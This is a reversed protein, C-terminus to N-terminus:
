TAVRVLYGTDVVWLADFGAASLPSGAGVVPVTGARALSDDVALLGRETSVWAGPPAAVLGDVLATPSLELRGDRPALTVPDHQTIGGLIHRVWVTTGDFAVADAADDLEVAALETGTDDLRVLRGGRSARDPSSVGAFVGDPAPALAQVGGPTPVRVAVENTVGDVRYLQEADDIGVWVGSPTAVLPTFVAAVERAVGPPELPVTAVEDGTAADSRTVTLASDDLVWVADGAAAIAVSDGSANARWTPRLSRPEVRRVTGRRGEGDDLTFVADGGTAVEDADVRVAGDIRAAGPDRRGRLRWQQTEECRGTPGANDEGEVEVDIELVAGDPRVKGDIDDFVGRVSDTTDTDTATLEIEFRGDDEVLAVGRGEPTFGGCEVEVDVLLLPRGAAAGIPVMRVSGGGQRGTYVVGLPAEDPGGARVPVEGLIPGAAGAVALSAAVLLTRM